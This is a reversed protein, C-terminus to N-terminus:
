DLLWNAGSHDLVKKAINTCQFSEFSQLHCHQQWQSLSATRHWPGNKHTKRRGREGRRRQKRIPDKSRERILFSVRKKRDVIMRNVLENLRMTEVGHTWLDTGAQDKLRFEINTYVLIVVVGQIQVDWFNIHDLNIGLHGRLRDRGWEKGDKYITVGNKGKMLGFCMCGGGVGGKSDYDVLCTVAITVQELIFIHWFDSRIIGM